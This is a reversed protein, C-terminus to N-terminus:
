AAIFLMFLEMEIRVSEMCHMLVTFLAAAPRGLM